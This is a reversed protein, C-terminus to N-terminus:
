EISDIQERLFPMKRQWLILNIFHFKIRVRSKKGNTCSKHVKKLTTDNCYVASKNFCHMYNAFIAYHVYEGWENFWKAMIWKLSYNWITLKFYNTASSPNEFFTVIHLDNCLWKKAIKGDDDIWISITVFHFDLLEFLFIIMINKIGQIIIRSYELFEHFYMWDLYITFSIEECYIVFKYSFSCKKPPINNIEFM